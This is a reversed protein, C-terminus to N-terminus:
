RSIGLATHRKQNKGFSSLDLMLILIQWEMAIQIMMVHLFVMSLWSSNTSLRKLKQVEM